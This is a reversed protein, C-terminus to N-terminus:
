KQSTLEINNTHPDANIGVVYKVLDFLNERYKVVIFVFGIVVAMTVMGLAFIVLPPLDNFAAYTTSAIGGLSLTGFWNRVGKMKPIYQTFTNTTGPTPSQTSTVDPSAQGDPTQSSNVPDDKTGLAPESEPVPAAVASRSLIQEFKVADAAIEDDHDTGNIIQRWAKYRALGTLRRFKTSTFSLGTFMGTRMGYSMIAYSIAPDLANMPDSTDGPQDGVTLDFTKGTRREFDRVIEPYERRLADEAKEYNSEGTVQVDGKGAYFYGEEATDNGLEKGKRTQGGYRKIFYAKGGYEHIPTFTHATERKVTALMYSARYIATEGDIHPDNEIGILLRELGKVQQQTLSGFQKRYETFFKKRDFYM